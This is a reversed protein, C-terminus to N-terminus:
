IIQRAELFDYRTIMSGRECPFNFNTLYSNTEVNSLIVWRVRPLLIQDNNTGIWIFLQGFTFDPWTPTPEFMAWFWENLRQSTINARIWMFLKGSTFNLLTMIQGLKPKDVRIKGWYVMKALIYRYNDISGGIQNWKCINGRNLM